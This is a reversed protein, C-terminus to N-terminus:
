EPQPTTTKLRKHLKIKLVVLFHKGKIPPWAFIESLNQTAVLRQQRTRRVYQYRFVRILM